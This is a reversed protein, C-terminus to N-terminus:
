VSRRFGGPHQGQVNRVSRRTRRVRRRRERVADREIQFFEDRSIALWDVGHDDASELDWSPDYGALVRRRLVTRVISPDSLM